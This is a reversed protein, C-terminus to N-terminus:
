VTVDKNTGIKARLAELQQPDVYKVRVDGCKTHRVKFGLGEIHEVAQRLRRDGASSQFIQQAQWNSIRRGDALMNVLTKVQAVSKVTAYGKPKKVSNRNVREKIDNGANDTHTFNCAALIHRTAKSAM